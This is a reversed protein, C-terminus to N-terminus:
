LGYVMSWLGIIRLQLTIKSTKHVQAVYQIMVAIMNLRSWRETMFQRRLMLAKLERFRFLCVDDRKHLQEGVSRKDTVRLKGIRM